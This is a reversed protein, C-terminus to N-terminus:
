TSVRRWFDQYEPEEPWELALSVRAEARDGRGSRANEAALMDEVLVSNLRLYSLIELLVGRDAVVCSEVIQPDSFQEQMYRLKRAQRQLIPDIHIDGQEGINSM